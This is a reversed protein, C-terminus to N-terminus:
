KEEIKEIEPEKVIEIPNIKSKKISQENLFILGIILVLTNILTFFLINTKM